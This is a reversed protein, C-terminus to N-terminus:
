PTTSAPGHPDTRQADKADPSLGTGTGSQIVAATGAEDKTATGPGASPSRAGIAAATGAENKVATGHSVPQAGIAAATGAEDKVAVGDSPPAPADVVIVKSPQISELAGDDILAYTGTAAAAGVLLAVVPAVLTRTPPLAPLRPTYQM